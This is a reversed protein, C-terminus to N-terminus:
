DARATSAPSKRASVGKTAHSVVRGLPEIPELSRKVLDRFRDFKSGSHRRKEFRAQNEQIHSVVEELSRAERVSDLRVGTKTEYRALAATWLASIHDEHANSTRLETMADYSPGVRALPTHDSMARQRPSCRKDRTALSREVRLPEIDIERTRWSDIAANPKPRAEVSSFGRVCATSPFWRGCLSLFAPFRWFGVRPGRYGVTTRAADGRCEGAAM